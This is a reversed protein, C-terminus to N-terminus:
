IDSAQDAPNSLCKVLVEVAWQPISKPPEGRTLTAAYEGVKPSVFDPFNRLIYGPEEVEREVLIRRLAAKVETESRTLDRLLLDRCERGKRQAEESAFEFERNLVLEAASVVLSPLLVPQIQGDENTM